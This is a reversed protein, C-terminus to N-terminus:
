RSAGSQAALDPSPLGPSVRCLCWSHTLPLLLTSTPLDPVWALGAYHLWGGWSGLVCASVRSSGGGAPRGVVCSSPVPALWCWWWWPWGSSCLGQFVAGDQVRHVALLRPRGQVVYSTGQHLGSGVGEPVHIWQPSRNRSRGWAPVM